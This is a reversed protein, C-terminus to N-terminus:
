YKAIDTIYRMSYSQNTPSVSTVAVQASPPSNKSNEESASSSSSTPTVPVSSSGASWILWETLNCSNMEVGLTKSHDKNGTVSWVIGKNQELKETKKKKDSYRGEEYGATTTGPCIQHNCTKASARVLKIYSVIWFDHKQCVFGTYSPTSDAHTACRNARQTEAGCPRRAPRATQVPFVSEEPLLSCMCVTPRKSEVVKVKWCIKM